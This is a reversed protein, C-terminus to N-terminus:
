RGRRLGGLWALLRGMLSRSPAAPPVPATAPWEVAPATPPPPPAVPPAVPTATGDRITSVALERILRLAASEDPDISLAREVLARAEDHRGEDAAIRALGVVAIANRPDADAVQAFLRGAVDVNGEALATEAALLREIM